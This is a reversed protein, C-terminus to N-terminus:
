IKERLSVLYALVDSIEQDTLKDRYSLMPSKKMVEFERLQDKKLTRLKESSIDLIQFSYTDMNLLRGTIETGNKDVARLTLNDQRIRAGPDVLSTRLDVARRMRGIGTLDPGAISGLRGIRHCQLCQGKGEVISEGNVRDGAPVTRMAAGSAAISRLYAVIMGAQEDTFNGPPMATGPIGKVIITRLDNDSQARRFQGSALNVASILDGDPGHCIACNNLFLQMGRELDEPSVGHGQQAVAAVATLLIACLM